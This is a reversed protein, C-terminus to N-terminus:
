DGLQQGVWAVIEDVAAWPDANTVTFGAAKKHGGGGYIVALKSLDVVDGKCRTSAKFSGDHLEYLFIAVEVDKTVRLQSVIGDLHKPLVDFEEMVEKTIVAAICQQEPYLKANVLAYGLIRNQNYTKEYFTRDVIGPYDIGLDMLKGAIEMTSRGTCSYQFVGTDHVMGTYLCEAIEKTIREEPLVGYVLECTSSADPVILNADAFSMNSVHHDICLTRKAGEFAKASNGLRDTAGCDLAIFLDYGEYSVGPNKIQDSNKLFNFITPIPELYVDVQIQPFYTSIYNYVGLCSGVCDGDPRIHGGIAVTSVGQLQEDLLM